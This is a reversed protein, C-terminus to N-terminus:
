IYVLEWEIMRSMIQYISNLCQTPTLSSHLGIPSPLWWPIIIQLHMSPIWLILASLQVVGISESWVYHLCMKVLFILKQILVRKCSLLQGMVWSPYQHFIGAISYICELQLINCRSLLVRCDMCALTTRFRRMIFCTRRLPVWQSDPLWDNLIQLLLKMWLWLFDLRLRWPLYDNWGSCLHYLCLQCDQSFDLRRLITLPPWSCVKRLASSNRRCIFEFPGNLLKLTLSTYVILM